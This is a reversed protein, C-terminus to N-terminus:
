SEIRRIKKIFRYIKPFTKMKSQLQYMFEGLGDFEQHVNILKKETLEYLRFEDFGYMEKLIKATSPCRMLEYLKEIALIKYLAGVRSKSKLYVFAEECKRQEITQYDRNILLDGFGEKFTDDGMDKFFDRFVLLLENADRNRNHITDSSINGRKPLIRYNTLQQELVYISSAKVVNIWMQFDPLQRLCPNYKGLCDYLQKRVLVSPHCLCNLDFFFHRLWKGRSRNGQNFILAEIHKAPDLVLENEDVFTVHTFVAGYERNHDLFNTQIMLKNPNWFDDSNILAIYEGRAQDLLFNTTYGAGRNKNFPYYKIRNDNFSRIIEDTNDTSSDDAILFEFDTLTQDLVSMIGHKIFKGHNYSPMIVSVKPPQM